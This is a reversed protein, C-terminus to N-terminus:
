RLSPGVAPVLNRRLHETLPIVASGHPGGGVVVSGVVAVRHPVVTVVVARPSLPASAGQASQLAVRQRGLRHGAADYSTVTVSGVGTDGLLVLRKAVPPVVVSTPQGVRDGTSATILDHLEAQRVSAVVPGTSQVEIGLAGAGASGGLIKTLSTQVVSGAPIRITSTGSPTLVADPTVVKLTLTVQGSTPNLTTLLAAPSTIGLIADREAPHTQPALWEDAGRTGTLHLARDAVQVVAEGREVVAHVALAGPRPMVKLLDFSKTAHGPIAIGALAPVSVPGDPGYVDLDVVAEGADPNTVEVVSDHVPGAGLGAFWDEAAPGGCDTAAMPAGSWRGAAITSAPGGHVLLTEPGAGADVATPVGGQLALSGSGATVTGSEDAYALVHDGGGGIAAPCVRVSSALKRAAPAATRPTWQSPRVFLLAVAVVAVALAAVVVTADLRRSRLRRISGTHDSM